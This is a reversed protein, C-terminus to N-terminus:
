KASSIGAFAAAMPQGRRGRRHLGGAGPSRCVNAQWLRSPLDRGDSRFGCGWAISFALLQLISALIASTRAAELKRGPKDPALFATASPPRPFTCDTCAASSVIVLGVSLIIIKM